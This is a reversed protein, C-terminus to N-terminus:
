GLHLFISELSLKKELAVKGSPSVAVEEVKVVRKLKPPSQPEHSLSPPPTQIHSRNLPMIPSTHVSTNSSTTDEKLVVVDNDDRNSRDVTTMEEWADTVIPKFGIVIPHSKLVPRDMSVSPYHSTKNLLFMSYDMLTMDEDNPINRAESFPEDEQISPSIMFYKRDFNQELSFHDPIPHPLSVANSRHKTTARMRNPVLHLTSVLTPSSAITSNFTRPSPCEKKPSTRQFASGTSFRSDDTENRFVPM